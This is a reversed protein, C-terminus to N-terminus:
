WHYGVIGGVYFEDGDSSLRVFEDLTLMEDDLFIYFGLNKNYNNSLRNVAIDIFEEDVFDSLTIMSLYKVESSFEAYSDAFYGYRNQVTIIDNKIGIGETTSLLWEIGDERREVDYTYDAFDKTYDYFMESCIYDDEAIPTKSLQFIRSHM